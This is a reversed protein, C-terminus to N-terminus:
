LLIGCELCHYQMNGMGDDRITALRWCSPCRKEEGAKPFHEKWKKCGETGCICANGVWNLKHKSDAM